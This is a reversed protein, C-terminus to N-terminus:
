SAGPKANENESEGWVRAPIVSEGGLKTWVSLRERRFEEDGLTALETRVHDESIRVGFALTRRIGLAVDNSAADITLERTIPASFGIYGLLARNKPTWARTWSLRRAFWIRLSLSPQNVM